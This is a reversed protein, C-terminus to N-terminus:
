FIPGHIAHFIAAFAGVLGIGVIVYPSVLRPPKTLAEVEASGMAKKGDAFGLSADIEDDRGKVIATDEATIGISPVKPNSTIKTQIYRQPAVDHRPKRVRDLIQDFSRPGPAPSESHSSAVAPEDNFSDLGNLDDAGYLNPDDLDGAYHNPDNLERDLDGLDGLESDSPGHHGGLGGLANLDDLGRLDDDIDDRFVIKQEEDQHFAEELDTQEPQRSALAPIMGFSTKTVENQPFSQPASRKSAPPITDHLEERVPLERAPRQALTPKHAAIKKRTSRQAAEPLAAEIFANVTKPEDEESFSEVAKVLPMSLHRADGLEDGAIDDLDFSTPLHHTMLVAMDEPIMEGIQTSQGSGLHNIRVKVRTVAGPPLARVQPEPSSEEALRDALERIDSPLAYKPDILTAEVSLDSFPDQGKLHTPEFGSSAM